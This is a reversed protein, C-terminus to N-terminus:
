TSLTTGAIDKRMTCTTTWLLVAAKQPLPEREEEEWVEGEVFGM